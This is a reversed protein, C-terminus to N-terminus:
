DKYLKNYFGEGARFRDSLPLNIRYIEPRNRLSFLLEGKSYHIFFYKNNM